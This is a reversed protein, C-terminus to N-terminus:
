LQITKISYPINDIIDTAILGYEGKELSGLDGALGHCYVGLKGSNFPSLGQAIFSAIVGTLVDGSGATAMGPNGTENVYIKDEHYAVITNFGKLVVIINYKNSIYNSYYIRNDQIEKISVRALRALEGPHPTIIIQNKHNHLIDPKLSICNIGDADIIIPGKFNRIIEELLHIRDEDVGMGPGIAVVDINELAELIPGLSDKTFVGRGKDEVPRVIAETLKISMIAELAKPVITYVLGAGARLAAMSSLFPAGTMGRSGGIIALRGYTGKHSNAQRKPLLNKMSKDIRLFSKYFDLYGIANAIAYDEEHSISIEVDTIKIQEMRDKLKQSINVYPKHNKHLIEIDKWGITGIGTGLVKSIAEKAAFMGAVTEARNGKYSIYEVEKETFIKNYFREKEKSLIKRIRDIKVIDIGTTLNNFGKM